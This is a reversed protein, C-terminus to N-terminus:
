WQGGVKKKGEHLLYLENKERRVKKKDQLITSTDVATINFRQWPLYSMFKQHWKKPKQVEEEELWTKFVAFM